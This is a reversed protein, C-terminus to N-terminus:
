NAPNSRRRGGVRRRSKRRIPRKQFDLLDGVTRVESGDRVRHLLEILLRATARADGLARHRASNSIGFHACLSDLNYRGLEPVVRRGLQQTCLVPARLRPLELSELGRRVFGADFRANHAVFPAGENRSLWTRFDGLAASPLPADAVMSDDIGTLDAIARSLPAPPRVLTQFEAGERLREVWVAGIELISSETPSLGTTELDVVVFCAQELTVDTVGLEEAPRVHRAALHEPLSQEACGLAAAVVRRAIIPDIPADLALIKRALADVSVPEGTERVLALTRRLQESTLSFVCRQILFLFPVLASPPRGIRDCPARLRRSLPLGSAYPPGGHNSGHSERKEEGCQDGGTRCDGFRLQGGHRPRREFEPSGWGGTARGEEDADVVSDAGGGDAGGV